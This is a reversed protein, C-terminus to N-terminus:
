GEMWKDPFINISWDIPIAAVVLNKIPEEAIATYMAALVGGFCYGLLSIEQAGSHRLARQVGKKIYDDIYDEINIDKDEYGQKGWDLLYVDYGSNVLSEIVSSGPAMDLIYPRNQISFVVFIPIEYKKEVAPFHWLTAKNKKWVAQKSTSFTGPKPKNMVNVVESWRKIEKDFDLTPLIKKNFTETVM